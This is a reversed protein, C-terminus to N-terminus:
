SIPLRSVMQEVGICPVSNVVFYDLIIIYSYYFKYLFCM